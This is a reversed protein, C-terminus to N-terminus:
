SFFPTSVCVHSVGPEIGLGSRWCLGTVGQFIRVQSDPSFALSDVTTTLNFLTKLPKAPSAALPLMAQQPFGSSSRSHNYVNVVGADSGSALYTGDRSLALSTSNLCGEDVERHLCRRTRMDWTHLVGDGGAAYFIFVWHSVSEKWRYLM